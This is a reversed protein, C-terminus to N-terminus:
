FCFLLLFDSLRKLKYVPLYDHCSLLGVTGNFGILDLPGHYIGLFINQFSKLDQQIFLM